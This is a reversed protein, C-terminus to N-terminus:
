APVPPEHAKLAQFDSALLTTDVADAWELLVDRKRDYPIPLKQLYEIVAQKHDEHFFWPSLIAQVTM